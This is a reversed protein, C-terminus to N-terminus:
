QGRGQYPDWWVLGCWVLGETLLLRVITSRYNENLLESLVLAAVFLVLLVFNASAGGVESLSGGVDGGLVVGVEEPSVGLVLGGELLVPGHLGDSEGTDEGVLFLDLHLLHVAALFTDLNDGGEVGVNSLVAFGAGDENVSAPDGEIVLVLPLM